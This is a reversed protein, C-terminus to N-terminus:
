MVVETREEHLLWGSRSKRFPDVLYFRAMHTPTTGVMGIQEYVCIEDYIRALATYHTAAARNIGYMAVSYVTGISMTSITGFLTEIYPHKSEAKLHGNLSQLKPDTGSSFKYLCYAVGKGNAKNGEASPIWSGRGHQFPNGMQILRFKGSSPTFTSIALWNIRMKSDPALKTLATAVAM